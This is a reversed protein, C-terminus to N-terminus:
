RQPIGGQKQDSKEASPQFKRHCENYLDANQGIASIQFLHIIGALSDTLFGINKSIQQGM